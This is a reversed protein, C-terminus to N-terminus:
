ASSNWRSCAGPSTARPPSTASSRGAGIGAATAIDEVTTQEFGNAEFLDFAVHELEAQSTARRRGPQGGGDPQDGPAVAASMTGGGDRQDPRGNPPLGVDPVAWSGQDSASPATVIAGLAMVCSTSTFSGTATTDAAASWSSVSGSAVSSSRTSSTEISPM